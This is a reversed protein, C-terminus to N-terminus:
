AQRLTAHPARRRLRGGGLATQPSVLEEVVAAAGGEPALTFRKRKPGEESRGAARLKATALVQTLVVKMELEAFRAGICRRVGGGFPIWAAGEPTGALFREPKFEVPDPYTEEDNHVLYISVMVTSGAPIVYGDLEIAEALHRAVVPVVPRVRLTEKVVADLYLDDEGAEIEKTLRDLKDPSRMLRELAWACGSTTTEYGAMVMTLVEDRIEEDALPSGDEHQARLLLSLTDDRLQTMPDARREAITEYLIADIEDIVKMLRAYPSGGALERRFSPMLTFPSDCRDMMDPILRRLEAHSDDSHDGFVVRMISAFSIAEMEDQLRLRQGAKWTSLRDQTIERVQDVFQAGHSAGFGPLLIKRQRMHADGDLLLISNSGVVPRFLGNTDGARFVAPDGAMVEKALRPDAVMTVNHKPGLRLTFIRGYRRRCREMFEIPRFMWQSSQLWGPAGPGPPLGAHPSRDFDTESGGQLVEVPSDV